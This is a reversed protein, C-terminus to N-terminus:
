WTMMRAINLKSGVFRLELSRRVDTENRKNTYTIKLYTRLDISSIASRRKQKIKAMQSLTAVIKDASRAPINIPWVELYAPV